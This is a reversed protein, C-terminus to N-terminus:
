CSSRAKRHGEDAARQDAPQFAVASIHARGLSDQKRSGTVSAIAASLRVRAGRDPGGSRRRAAAAATPGLIGGAGVGAFRRILNAVSVTPWGGRTRRRCGGLRVGGRRARLRAVSRRGAAERAVWM